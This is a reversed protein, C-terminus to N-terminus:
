EESENKDKNRRRSLSLLKIDAKFEAVATSFNNIESFMQQYNLVFLRITYCWGLIVVVCIGIVGYQVFEPIVPITEM